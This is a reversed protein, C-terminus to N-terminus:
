LAQAHSSTFSFCGRPVGSPFGSSFTDLEGLPQKSKCSGHALSPAQDITHVLDMPDEHPRLAAAPLGLPTADHVDDGLHLSEDLPTLVLPAVERSLLLAVERLMTLSAEEAHGVGGEQKPLPNGEVFGKLLHRILTGQVRADDLLRLVDRVLLLGLLTLSGHTIRITEKRM